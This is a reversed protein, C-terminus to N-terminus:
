GGIISKLQDISVEWVAKADEVEDEEEWDTVMLSVDNTLEDKVMEFILFEDEEREIWKFKVMKNIKKTVVEVKEDSGDWEFTYIKGNVRVDDAFWDTLGSASSCYNYILESKARFPFECTYKVRAM